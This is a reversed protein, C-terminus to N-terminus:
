EKLSLPNPGAKAKSVLSEMERNAFVIDKSEIDVVLLGNPIIQM